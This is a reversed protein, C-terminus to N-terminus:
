SNNKQQMIVFHGDLLNISKIEGPIFKRDGFLNIMWFGQEGAEVKAVDKLIEKNDNESEMYVSSLCM